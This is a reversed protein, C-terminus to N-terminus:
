ADLQDVLEYFAVLDDDHAAVTDALVSFVAPCLECVLRGSGSPYRYLAFRHECTM